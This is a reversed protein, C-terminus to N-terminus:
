DTTVFLALLADLHLYGLPTTKVIGERIELLQRDLGPAILNELQKQTTGTHNLLDSICLGAKLRLGNMLAEFLAEENEIKHTKAHFGEPKMLYDEPKRTHYFRKIIEKTTVKGHAGAGIALYDGFQWYNLNHLSKKCQRAFASVEYQYLGATALTEIGAEHISILTDEHPIVPPNSYFATNKEITLQYWSLHETGFSLGQTLDDMAKVKTQDPLGHMLDINIREFGASQAATIARKADASQHIRGLRKLASDDFSQVGISLRNIGVARYDTFKQQEASSPNAELTIEINSKFGITKEAHELIRALSNAAFLSPTGGGFFISTLQRGQVFPKQSTLDSLLKEVYADEPIHNNVHSNFDCYPCKKECWPIHVYLSLPPLTLTTM